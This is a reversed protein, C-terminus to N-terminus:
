PTHNGTKESETASNQPYRSPLGAQQCLQNVEQKMEIMRLERGVSARNFRELEENRARLEETQQRLTEGAQKRETIDRCVAFILKQGSCIAANSSIEVDFVTGDKRRHRTEFHDGGADVLRIKEMVQERTWQADWDWVHLQLVEDPSYGLMEAYRHNAELVKGYEDLVCIGDRSQEVLIRRRVTEEALAEEARKRETINHLVCHTYAPRGQADRVFIGDFAVTLVVGDKRRVEFESGQTVGRERFRPFGEAFATQSAPTFFEDLRRGIVEERTYGFLTLWAPNVDLIRGEADLSQYSVPSQEYIKRFRLESERLTAEALKHSQLLKWERLLREVTHPLTAFAEPSKVVYDLAGAKMVEVVIQQNGFATMVLVPFPADEPPHTLVDVARGDPLNLDMLAIDPPHATILERYERLTGAARIDAKGGAADFARRIAEIHADEDDVILLHLRETNM